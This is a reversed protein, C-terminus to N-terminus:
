PEPESLVSELRPELWQQALIKAPDDDPLAAYTISLATALYLATTPPGTLIEKPLQLLLIKLGEYPDGKQKRKKHKEKKQQEEIEAPDQPRLSQAAQKAFDTLPAVPTTIRKLSGM